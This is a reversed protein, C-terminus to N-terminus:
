PLSVFGGLFDRASATDLRYVVNTARCADDGTITTAALIPTEDAGAGLFNPGGSDGFCTGGDGLAPNMSIRLWTASSTWLSGVAQYRIDTYHFLQGGRGYTIFQAGYGVSTFKTGRDLGDLSGPSPLLAPTISLVPDDLVVYALDHPDNQAPRYDPDAYWTGWYTTGPAVYASDFTVAVRELGMDCHAATLFVSPSILTGSCEAWTGDSFAEPALLAGVNPHDNGDPGGFFIASAPGAAAALLGVLGVIVILRRVGLDHSV